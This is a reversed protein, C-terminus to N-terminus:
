RKEKECLESLKAKKHEERQTGGDDTQLVVGNAPGFAGNSGPRDSSNSSGGRGSGRPRFGGRGRGRWQTAGQKGRFPGGVGSGRAM